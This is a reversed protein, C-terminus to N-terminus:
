FFVREGKPPPCLRLGPEVMNLSSQTGFKQEAASVSQNRIVQALLLMVDISPWLSQLTPPVACYEGCLPSDEYFGAFTWSSSLAAFLLFGRIVKRCHLLFFGTQVVGAFPRCCMLWVISLLVPLFFSILHSVQIELSLCSETFHFRTPLLYAGWIFEFQPVPMSTGFRHWVDM